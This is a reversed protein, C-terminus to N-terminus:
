TVIRTLHVALGALAVCLVASGIMYAAALGLRGAELLTITEISFTSFTTFAGLFGVILIGRWPPAFMQREVLIVYLIGIALSGLLNVLLTGFPFVGGWSRFIWNALVHRAVAGGAGGLAICVLYNM